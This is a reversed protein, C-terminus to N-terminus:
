CIEFNIFLEIPSGEHTALRICYCGSYSIIMVSLINLCQLFRKIWTYAECRGVCAECCCDSIVGAM